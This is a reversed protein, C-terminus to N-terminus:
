FRITTNAPLRVTGKMLKIVAYVVETSGSLTWIFPDATFSLDTTGDTATVLEGKFGSIRAIETSPISMLSAGLKLRDKGTLRPISTITSLTVIASDDVNLTLPAATGVPTLSTGLSLVTGAGFTNLTINGIGADSNATFSSITLGGSTRDELQLVGKASKILSTIVEPVGDAGYFILKGTSAVTLSTYTNGLFNAASSAGVTVTSNAPLTVDSGVWATTSTPRYTHKDILTLASTGDHTATGHTLDTWQGAAYLHHTCLVGVLIVAASQILTLFRKMNLM